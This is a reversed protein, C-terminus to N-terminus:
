WERDLIRRAHRIASPDLLSVIEVGGEGADCPVPRSVVQGQSDIVKWLAPLSVGAEGRRRVIAVEGHRLRVVTGAPYIGLANVLAALLEQDFEGAEDRYLAALAEKALHRARYPRPRLMASLADAISLIRVDESVAAGSIGRPYGQGNIREHHSAVADLWVPDSVNLKQLLAVTMEPHRLVLERDQAGLETRGELRFQEDWLSLDHTLAACVLGLRHAESKGTAKALVACVVAAMVAHYVTYCNETDLHPHAFAADPDQDVAQVLTTALRVIASVFGPASPNRAILDYLADLRHSLAEMMAHSSLTRLSVASAQSRQRKRAKTLLVDVHDPSTVIGGARLLIRGEESYLDCVIPVGLCVDSPTLPILPPSM